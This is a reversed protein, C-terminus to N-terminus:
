AKATKRRLFAPIDWKEEKELIEKESQEAEKKLELASRRLKKPASSETPKDEKKEKKISKINKEEKKAIKQRKNGVAKPQSPLIVQTSKEKEVEPIQKPKTSPRVKATSDKKAIPPKTKPKAKTKKEETKKEKGCGVALLTIGIKNDYKKNESIGFIIKASKNFDSITNSIKEVELMGLDKSATINFLIREAGRIDYENLPNHLVRQLAEEARNPGQAEVRNLYALRGRGELITRVDAFDINILGPAYIMEILGGLSRSLYKNVASLADKLPTKEDIIQFIKENPIVAFASLNPSLRELSEKAIQARKEGEFKFPLTFIGFSKKKLSKAIEAFVPSAGSGTGGGLCAVFICFDSNELEKKIKERCNEAAQKGLEPNMGCGLGHTLEEGFQFRKTERPAQKLAQLDVNVVLFDIKKIKTAIESVISGGGGGIGIVKIKTRHITSEVPKQHKPKPRLKKEDKGGKRKVKKRAKAM